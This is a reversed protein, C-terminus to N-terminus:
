CGSGRPDAHVRVRVGDTAVTSDPVYCQGSALEEVGAESADLAQVARM